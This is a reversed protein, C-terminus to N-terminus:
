LLTLISSCFSEVSAIFSFASPECGHQEDTDSLPSQQEDPEPLLPFLQFIAINTTTISSAPTTAAWESSVLLPSVWLTDPSAADENSVSVKGSLTPEDVSAGTAPSCGDSAAAATHPMVKSEMFDSGFM